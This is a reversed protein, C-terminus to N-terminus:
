IEPYVDTRRLLPMEQRIKEWYALDVDVVGIEAESGEGTMDLLVKGWPDVVMSHGYSTRKENHAGIQAAAIVYAQTEIARAKLLTEWHAKGTPVTFASPYTLIQANQRKHALSIEPFRIDFCIMLGVRGVVTEVPRGISKGGEVSNSERLMGYDFLHLKDYYAEIEGRENIWCSRNLMKGSLTPVHIGVNIALNSEKASNQLGLVFPSREMPHALSISESPSSAIYDTAEPLFLAKAGAEVAKKVLVQCLALNHSMSATSCLQGIAAIAM